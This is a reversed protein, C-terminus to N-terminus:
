INFTISIAEIIESFKNCFVCFNKKFIKTMFEM